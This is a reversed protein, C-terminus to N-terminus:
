AEAGLAKRLLDGTDAGNVPFCVQDIMVKFGKNDFDYYELTKEYRSKARGGASADAYPLLVALHNIELAGIIDSERTEETLIDSLIRSYADKEEQVDNKLFPNIKLLLLCLFNQYRRARKVELDLLFFFLDRDLVKGHSPRFEDMFTERDGAM